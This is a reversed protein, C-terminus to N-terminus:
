RTHGFASLILAVLDAQRHTGTKQFLNRMHFAVTTSSVDLTEAIGEPRSGHALARAVEAETPTLGFLDALASAPMAPRREPDCVFLAVQGQREGDGPLTCAIALLDRQGSPRPLSLSALRDAGAAGAESVAEVLDHLARTHDPTAARLGPELMLGDTERALTRAATNAFAIRAGTDLVIVAFALIDLVGATAGPASDPVERDLAGLPHAPDGRIRRIQGIRAGISALMLDFDVPKTLYDDAGARKGSIVENRDGYATLFVFPVDALDPRRSRIVELLAYGGLRPMAIDCLILDPTLDDLLALAELGDCAQATRYGSAAIEDVIDRLLNPEDEVCLVVPMESRVQTSADHTRM